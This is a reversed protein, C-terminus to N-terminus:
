RDRASLRFIPEHPVDRQLIGFHRMFLRRVSGDTAIGPQASIGLGAFFAALYMDVHMEFFSTNTFLEVSLPQHSELDEGWMHLEHIRDGEVYEPINLRANLVIDYIVGLFIWDPYCYRHRMRTYFRSFKPDARLQPLTVPLLTPVLEYREAIRDMIRDLDPELLVSIPRNSAAIREFFEDETAGDAYALTMALRWGTLLGERFEGEDRAVMLSHSQASALLEKSAALLAEAHRAHEADNPRAFTEGEVGSYSASQKRLDLVRAVDMLELFAQEVEAGSAGALIECQNAWTLAHYLKEEHSYFTRWFREWRVQKKGLAWAGQMHIVRAKGLEELAIVCRHFAGAHKGHRALLDSEDVLAAAHEVAARFAERMQKVTLSRKTAERKMM